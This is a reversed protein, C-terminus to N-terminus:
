ERGPTLHPRARGIAVMARRDGSAVIADAAGTGVGKVAALM